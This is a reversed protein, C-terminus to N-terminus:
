FTNKFDLTLCCHFDKTFIQHHFYISLYINMGITYTHGDIQFTASQCKKFLKIGSAQPLPPKCSVGASQNQEEKKVKEKDKDKDEVQISKSKMINKKIINNESM